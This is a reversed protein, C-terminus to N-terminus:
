LSIGTPVQMDAARRGTTSVAAPLEPTEIRPKTQTVAEDAPSSERSRKGMQQVQFYHSVPKM